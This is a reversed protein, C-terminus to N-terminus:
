VINNMIKLSCFSIVFYYTENQVNIQIHKHRYIYSIWICTHTYIVYTIYMICKKVLFYVLVKINTVKTQM